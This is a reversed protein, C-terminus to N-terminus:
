ENDDDEFKNKSYGADEMTENDPEWDESSKGTRKNNAPRIKESVPKGPTREGEDGVYMDSNNSSSDYQQSEKGSNAIQKGDISKTAHPVLRLREKSILQGTVSCIGYTKNQIRLLANRLDQVYRQQRVLMRQLMELDTHATSDDYWDGGQQNFGNENLDTIQQETTQLEEQATVLKQDILAKFEQLEEDSYRAKPDNSM